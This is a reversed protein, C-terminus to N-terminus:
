LEVSGIRNDTITVNSASAGNISLAGIISNNTVLPAATAGTLTLSGMTNSDFKTAAGGTLTVAGGIINTLLQANSTPTANGIQVNGSITNGSLFPASTGGIIAVNGNITNGTLTPSTSHNLTLTGTTNANLVSGS